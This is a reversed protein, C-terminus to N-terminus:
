LGEKIVLVACQDDSSAKSTTGDSFDVVRCLANLALLSTEDTWFQTSRSHKPFYSGNIRAWDNPQRHLVLLSSLERMSPLRGGRSAAYTRANSFTMITDPQYLVWTKRLLADSVSEADKAKFRQPALVFRGPDLQPQGNLVGVSFYLHADEAEADQVVPEPAAVAPKPQLNAGDKAGSAAAQQTAAPNQPVSTVSSRAQQEAELKRAVRAAEDAQRKTEAEAALRAEQATKLAQALRKSEAEAEARKKAETDAAAQMSRQAKLLEEQKAADAVQVAKDRAAEWLAVLASVAKRVDDFAGQEYRRRLEVDAKEAAGWAEPALAAAGASAARAKAEEAPRLSERSAVRLGEQERIEGSLREADRCGASVQQWRGEQQAQCVKAWTAELADLKLGLGQGRDVAVAQDRLGGAKRFLIEAEWRAALEDAASRGEAGLARLPELQPLAAEIGSAAFAAEAQRALAALAEDRGRPVAESGLRHRASLVGYGGAALVVGAAVALLVGRLRRKGPAPSAAARGVAEVLDGCTAFRASPEKALGRLLAQNQAANLQPVPEPKEQAVVNMMIAADGTEFAPAFPVAGSVLEYFLVALAYQDTQPGQRRGQWQEPAMYPRTGSTDFTETSVRSLSSHIEAALGFDLVRCRVAGDEMSEVVTNSPKVDRHIIKEGHAYDLASAIQRCAELAQEVPVQGGPFLRRWKNLTVGPAYAMVMLYDGSLVRLAKRVHEDAYSVDQAQHLVLAPAIHPHYLRSVLAFNERIRELEERNNRVLPPLGKVAVDVGAVTDRALYVVGFGGGGLERLLAYRDIRGLAREAVTKVTVDDPVWARTGETVEEERVTQMTRDAM